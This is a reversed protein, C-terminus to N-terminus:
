ESSIRQIRQKRLDRFIRGYTSSGADEYLQPFLSCDPEETVCAFSQSNKSKDIPRFEHCTGKPTPNCCPSHSLALCPSLHSGSGVLHNWERVFSATSM